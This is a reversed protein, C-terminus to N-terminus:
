KVVMPPNPHKFKSILLNILKALLFAILTLAIPIYIHRLDVISEWLLLPSILWLVSTWKKFVCNYFFIIIFFILVLPFGIITNWTGENGIWSSGSGFLSSYVTGVYVAGYYSVIVAVIICVLSLLIKKM